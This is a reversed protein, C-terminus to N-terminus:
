PTVKAIVTGSGSLGEVFYRFFRGGAVNFTQMPGVTQTSGAVTAANVAGVQTWESTPSNFYLASQLIVTVATPLTPFTVASTIAKLGFDTPEQAPVYVPVSAGNALTEAVEQIPVMGKGSDPTTAVNAHTLPFTLTAVGPGTVSVSALAVGTVNFAGSSTTTGQISLLNGVAPVNGAQITGIVTAVNSTIAVSTITMVMDATDVPLSGFLYAPKGPIAVEPLAAFPSASFAPM